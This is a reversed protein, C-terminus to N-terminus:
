CCCGGEDEAEEDEEKLLWCCCGNWGAARAFSSFSTRFAMCSRMSHNMMLRTPTDTM